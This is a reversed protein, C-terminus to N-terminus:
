FTTGRDSHMHSPIGRRSTFRKYAAIFAPSSYDSVLELHIAKVALCVFVSIYCQQSKIGRGGAMRVKLPGAYDVGCQTFARDSRTVRPAPLNAMLQSALNARIKACTLCKFLVSKIQPRPNVLWVTQRLTSLTLKMGGHLCRQHVHRILSTVLPHSQLIVPHQADHLLSSNTLRGGVRIVGTAKDIYPYLSSLKSKTSVSQGTTLAHLGPAFMQAQLYKFLLIQADSLEHAALPGLRVSAEVTNDQKRQKIKLCLNKKYRLLYAIVRVARLWSSFKHVVIYLPADADNTVHSVIIKAELIDEPPSEPFTNPWNSPKELLWDPGRWWLSCNVLEAPTYGRSALDAPNSLTPVHRWHHTPLLEQNEAVRNCVFLKWTSAHKRLWALTISSDTWCQVPLDAFARVDRLAVVLQALLLAAQLELRHVSVPKLPAVKTKSMILSIQVNGANDVTRLYVAAGYADNSADSFRHLQSSKNTTHLYNWRLIQIESLVTLSDFYELWQNALSDPLAEDWPTKNLWLKQM